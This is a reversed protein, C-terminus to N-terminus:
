WPTCPRSTRARSSRAGGPWRAPVTMIWRPCCGAVPWSNADRLRGPGCPLGHIRWVPRWTAREPIAALAPAAYLMVIPVTWPLLAPESRPAPRPTTRILEPSDLPASRVSPLLLDAEGPKGAHLTILVGAPAAFPHLRASRLAHSTSTVPLKSDEAWLCLGDRAAWFGHLVLM